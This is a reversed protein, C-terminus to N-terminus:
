RRDRKLYDWLVVANNYREDHAAYLLTVVGEDSLRALLSDVALRNADLEALYRERFGLWKEPDHAFWKRLETSPAVEKAWLDIHASAKSLGRPWLRDVLVRFGDDSSPADYARKIHLKM